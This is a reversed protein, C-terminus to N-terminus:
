LIGGGKCLLDAEVQSSFVLLELRLGLRDRRSLPLYEISATAFIQNVLDVRNFVNLCLCCVGVIEGNSVCM